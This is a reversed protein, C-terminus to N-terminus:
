NCIISHNERALVDVMHHNIHDNWVCVTSVLFRNLCTVEEIFKSFIFISFFISLLKTLTSIEVKKKKETANTNAHRSLSIFFFNDFHEDYMISDHVPFVFHLMNPDLLFLRRLRCRRRKAMFDSTIVPVQSRAFRRSWNSVRFPRINAPTAWRNSSTSVVCEMWASIAWLIETSFFFSRLSFTLLFFLYIFMRLSVCQPFVVDVVWNIKWMIKM